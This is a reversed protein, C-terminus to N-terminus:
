LLFLDGSNRQLYRRTTMRTVYGSYYVELSVGKKSVMNYFENIVKEEQTSYKTWNVTSKNLNGKGEAKAILQKRAKHGRYHSQIAITAKSLRIVDFSGDMPQKGGTSSKSEKHQSKQM